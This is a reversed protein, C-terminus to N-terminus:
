SLDWFMAQGELLYVTAELHCSTEGKLHLSVYHVLEEELEELSGEIM